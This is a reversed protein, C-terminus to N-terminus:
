QLLADPHVESLLPDSRYLFFHTLIFLYFINHNTDKKLNFYINDQQLLMVKQWAGTRSNLIRYHRERPAGTKDTRGGAQLKLYMEVSESPSNELVTAKGPM